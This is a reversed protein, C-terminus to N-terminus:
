IKKVKLMLSYKEKGEGLHIVNIDCRRIIDQGILMAMRSKIASEMKAQSSYKNYDSESTFYEAQILEGKQREEEYLMEASEAVAKYTKADESLTRVLKHYRMNIAFLVLVCIFEIIIIINM